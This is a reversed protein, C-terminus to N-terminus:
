GLCSMHAAQECKSFDIRRESQKQNTEAGGASSRPYPAKPLVRLANALRMVAHTGATRQVCPNTSAPFPCPRVMFDTSGAQGSAM